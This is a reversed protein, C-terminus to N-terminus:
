KRPIPESTILWRICRMKRDVIDPRSLYTKSLAALEPSRKYEGLGIDGVDREVNFRFYPFRADINAARSADFIQNHVTESDTVLASMAGAMMIVAKVGAPFKRATRWVPVKDLLHPVFHRIRELVTKQAEVDNELDSEKLISVGKPYGTGISVLTHSTSKPWIRAAEQRALQSPNNFGLGGDVYTIGPEPEEIEMAKFYTPAASTARAAEWIACTSAGYGGARYSRFLEPHGTVDGAVKAVVFTRCGPKDTPTSMGFNESGLHTKIEGKIADELDKFNFRCQDDGKPVV